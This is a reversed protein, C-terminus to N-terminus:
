FLTIVLYLIQTDTSSQKLFIFFSPDTILKLSLLLMSGKKKKQNKSNQNRCCNEGLELALFNFSAGYKDNICFFIFFM